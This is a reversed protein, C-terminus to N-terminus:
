RGRKGGMSKFEPSGSLQFGVSDYSSEVSTM